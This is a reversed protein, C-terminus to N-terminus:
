CATEPVVGGSGEKRVEKVRRRQVPSDGGSERDVGPALAGNGGQECVNGTGHRTPVSSYSPSGTVCSPAPSIRQFPNHTRFTM